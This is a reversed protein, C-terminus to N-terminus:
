TFKPSLDKEKQWDKRFARVDLKGIKKTPLRTNLKLHLFNRLWLNKRMRCFIRDVGVSSLYSDIQYM